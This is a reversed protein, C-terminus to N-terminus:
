LLGTELASNIESVALRLLADDAETPLVMAHETASKVWGASKLLGLGGVKSSIREKIKENDLNIHRFKAVGPNALANSCLTRVTEAAVRGALGYVKLASMAARMAEAPPLEKPPPPAKLGELVALQDQVYVLSRSAHVRDPAHNSRCCTPRCCTPRCCTPSTRACMLVWVGGALAGVHMALMCVPLCCVMLDAPVTGTADRHREIKDRLLEIQLRKREKEKAEREIRQKEHELKRQIAIIDEAMDQAM